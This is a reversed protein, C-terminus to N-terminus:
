SSLRSLLYNYLLCTQDMKGYVNWGKEKIVGLCIPAVRRLAIIGIFNM